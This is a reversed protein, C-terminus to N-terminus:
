VLCLPPHFSLILSRSPRESCRGAIRRLACSSWLLFVSILRNSVGEPTDSPREFLTRDQTSSQSFRREVPGVATQQHQSLMTLTLLVIARFKCIPRISKANSSLLLEHNKHLLTSPLCTLPGHTQSLLHSGERLRVCVCVLWVASALILLKKSGVSFVHCLINPLRSTVLSPASLPHGTFDQM